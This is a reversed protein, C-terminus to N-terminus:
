GPGFHLVLSSCVCFHYLSERTAAQLGNGDTGLRRTWGGLVSSLYVMCFCRVLVKSPKWGRFNTLRWLVLLNRM